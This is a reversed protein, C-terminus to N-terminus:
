FTAYFHIVKYEKTNDYAFQRTHLQVSYNLDFSSKQFPYSDSGNNKLQFVSKNKNALGPLSSSKITQIYQVM